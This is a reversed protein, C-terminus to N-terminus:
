WWRATAHSIGSPTDASWEVEVYWGSDIGRYTSVRVSTGVPPLDDSRYRRDDIEVYRGEADDGVEVEADMSAGM